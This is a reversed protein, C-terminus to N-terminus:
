HVGHYASSVLRSLDYHDIHDDTDTKLNSKFETYTDASLTMPLTITLSTTIRAYTLKDVCLVDQFPRSTM